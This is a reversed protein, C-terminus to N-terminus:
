NEIKWETATMGTQFVGHLIHLSCSGISVTSQFGSALQQENLLDLVVWNVSPGDMALQLFKARDLM